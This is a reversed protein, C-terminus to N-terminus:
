GGFMALMKKLKEDFEDGSLQRDPDEEDFLSQPIEQLFRSPVCDV